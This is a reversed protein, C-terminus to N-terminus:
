EAVSALATRVVSKHRDRVYVAWDDTLVYGAWAAKESRGDDARRVGPKHRPDFTPAPYFVVYSEALCPDNALIGWQPDPVECASVNMREWSAPVTVRTGEYEVIQTSEDVGDPIVGSDEHNDSETVRFLWLLAVVAVLCASTAWLLRRGGPGSKRSASMM